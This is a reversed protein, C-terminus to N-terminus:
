SVMKKARIIHQQLNDYYNLTLEIYYFLLADM